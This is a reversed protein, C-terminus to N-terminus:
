FLCIINKNQSIVAGLHINSADTNATFLIEWDPYNVLTKHSIIKNLERFDLEISGNCTILRDKPISDM